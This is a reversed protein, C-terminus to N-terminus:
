KKQPLEAEYFRFGNKAYTKKSSFSYIRQDGFNKFRPSFGVGILHTAAFIQGSFGNTDTSHVQEQPVPNHILGDIVYPAERDSSSFVTSYFLAQCEDIFTYM